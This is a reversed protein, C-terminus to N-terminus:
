FEFAFLIQIINSKKNEEKLRNQSLNSFCNWHKSMKKKKIIYYLM